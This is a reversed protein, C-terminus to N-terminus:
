LLNQWLIRREPTTIDQGGNYHIILPFTDEEINHVSGEVVSVVDNSQRNMCQFLRCGYDIQIADPYYTLFQEATWGQDSGIPSFPRGFKAFWGIIHEREGLCAGANIYRHTVAPTPYDDPVFSSPPWINAEAAYVWPHDLAFFEEMIHAPEALVVVDSGDILMVHTYSEDLQNVLKIFWKAKTINGKWQPVVKQYHDYGWHDLISRVAECKPTESFPIDVVSLVKLKFHKGM